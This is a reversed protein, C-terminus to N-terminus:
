FLIFLKFHRFEAPCIPSLHFMRRATAVLALDRWKGGLRASTCRFACIMSPQSCRLAFCMRKLHRFCGFCSSKEKYKEFMRCLQLICLFSDRLETCKRTQLAHLTLLRLCCRALCGRREEAVERNRIADRRM